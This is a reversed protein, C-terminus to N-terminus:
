RFPPSDPLKVAVVLGGMGVIWMAALLEHEGLSAAVSNIVCIALCQVAGLVECIM